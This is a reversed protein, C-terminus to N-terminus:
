IIRCITIIFFLYTLTQLNFILFPGELMYHQICWFRWFHVLFLLITPPHPNWTNLFDDFLLCFKNWIYYPLFLLYAIYIYYLLLKARKYIWTPLKATETKELNPSFLSSARKSKRFTIPAVFAKSSWFLLFIM